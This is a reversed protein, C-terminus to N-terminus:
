FGTGIALRVTAILLTVLAFLTRVVSHTVRTCLANTHSNRKITAWLKITTTSTYHFLQVAPTVLALIPTAMCGMVYLQIVGRVGLVNYLSHLAVSPAQRLIPSAVLVRLATDVAARYCTDVLTTLLISNLFHDLYYLICMAALGFWMYKNRRQHV